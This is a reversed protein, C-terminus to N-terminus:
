GPKQNAQAVLDQVTKAPFSPPVIMVLPVTAIQTVGSFDNVPDFQNNKNVVSAVTHGNSTLMLTYGDPSARAVSITGPPGPRNEVIVEQKWLDRLKGSITRALTDTISGASFPVVIRVTQSPYTQGYAGNSMVAFVAVCFTLMGPKLM